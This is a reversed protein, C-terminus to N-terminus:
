PIVTFFITTADDNIHETMPTIHDIINKSFNFGYGVNDGYPPDTIILDICNNPLTKMYEICDANIIKNTEM